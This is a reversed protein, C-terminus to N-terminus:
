AYGHSENTQRVNSLELRLSRIEGEQRDVRLGLARLDRALDELTVLTPVGPFWSAPPPPVAFM